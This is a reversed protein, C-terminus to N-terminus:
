EQLRYMTTTTPIGDNDSFIVLVKETLSDIRYTERLDGAKYILQNGERAYEVQSSDVGETHVIGDTGFEFVTGNFAPGGIVDGGRQVVAVKWRGILLDPSGACGSLCVLVSLFLLQIRNVAM